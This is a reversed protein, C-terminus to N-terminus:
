SARGSRTRTHRPRERSAGLHVDDLKVRPVRCLLFHPCGIAHDEIEIRAFPRGAPLNTAMLGAFSQVDDWRLSPDGSAGASVDICPCASIGAKAPIVSVSALARLVSVRGGSYLRAGADSGDDCRRVAGAGAGHRDGLGHHRCGAGRDPNRVLRDRGRELQGFAQRFSDVALAAQKM